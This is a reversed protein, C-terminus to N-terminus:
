AVVEASGEARWAQAAALVEDLQETARDVVAPVHDELRRRVEDRASFSAMAQEVAEAGAIDRADAVQDATGCTGFVGRAKDSYAYGFAPVASSLAAITAHMRSGTFWDMRAICWKLHAARLTPDLRWTRRRESPSLADDILDFAASDNELPHKGHVHSVLVVYAGAAVLAKVMDTMTGIYDGALGFREGASVERLLGSANVGVVVEGALADLHAAIADDPRQPALGFAVDVGERFRSSHADPGALELLRDHSWSDRAYAITASRVLREARRRGDTTTFPGYTQPLLVLPRGSRLAAEKPACVTDLRQPGYLDTFSDGGSLDVVADAQTLRAVLPNGLGGLAQDIRVRTWSERRHWRRSNRVGIREVVASSDPLPTTRVGWGGDLMSLREVSPAGALYTAVSTGLAEVGRNDNDLPAGALVIRIGDERAEIPAYSNTKM